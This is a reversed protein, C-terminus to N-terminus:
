TVRRLIKGLPDENTEFLPKGALWIQCQVSGAEEDWCMHMVETQFERSLDQAFVSSSAYSWYNFVGGIIVYSGKEGNIEHSLAGAEPASSSVGSPPRILNPHQVKFDERVQEIRQRLDDQNVADAFVGGTRIGILNSVYYGM